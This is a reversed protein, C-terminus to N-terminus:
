RTWANSWANMETDLVPRGHGVVRTAIALDLPQVARGLFGDDTSVVVALVGIEPM